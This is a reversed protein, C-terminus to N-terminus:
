SERCGDPVELCLREALVKLQFPWNEAPFADHISQCDRIMSLHPLLRKPLMHWIVEVRKGEMEPSYEDDSLLCGAACSLGEKTHYRCTLGTLDWSKQGQKILHQAITNLIEQATMIM